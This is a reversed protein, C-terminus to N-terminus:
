NAPPAPVSDAIQMETLSVGMKELTVKNLTGTVQLGNAEQFKKLGDRTEKNLQGTQEGGYMGGDKLKQQAERIQDKTARFIPARKPNAQTGGDSKEKAYSDPSIPITKQTDTLEISMKELTARNLTGTQKLGNDKQFLKIGSRTENNYKGTSEGSYLNKAKLMTQAKGIQDKTPRFVIRKPKTETSASPGSTPGSTSTQATAAIGMAAVLIMLTILRRM